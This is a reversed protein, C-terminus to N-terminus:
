EINNVKVMKKGITEGSFLEIFASPINEFGEELTEKYILKNSNYWEALQKLGQKYEKIFDFVVFGEMRISKEVLGFMPRFGQPKGTENYESMQGCIAIRGYRNMNPFVADFVNGGVNDFFVDVGEPCVKKIEAELDDTERYNIGKDIGLENELFDIKKQSGAIGVVKCGKLKAIQVVISGVGGAAGSVLVTEGKKPQGIKLLGFYASLGPIGYLTISASIPKLNPNVKTLENANASQYKQWKLRGSVLDGKKFDNSKSELVQAVGRSTIAQNLAYKNGIADDNGKKMFGRMGPDVSIYLTKLLVEGENIKDTEISKIQFTNDNPVGEPYEALVIEKNETIKQM